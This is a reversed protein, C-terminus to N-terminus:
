SLGAGCASAKMPYPLYSQHINIEVISSAPDSAILAEITM